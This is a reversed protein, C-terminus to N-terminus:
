LGLQAGIEQAVEQPSLGATHITLHAKSYHPTRSALMAAFSARDRLLPRQSVDQTNVRQWLEEEPASLFVVTAGAAQLEEQNETRTLTGGGLAIVRRKDRSEAVIRRLTETESRRFSAQGSRTFLESISAREFREVAEDLDLFEWGLRQALERGVSTKGAGM